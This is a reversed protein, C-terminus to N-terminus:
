ENPKELFLGYGGKNLIDMKLVQVGEPIGDFSEGDGQCRRNNKEKKRQFEMLVKVVGQFKWTKKKGGGEGRSNEFNLCGKREEWCCLPSISNKHSLGKIKLARVTQIEFCVLSLITFIITEIWTIIIIQKIFKWPPEAATLISSSETFRYEFWYSCPM